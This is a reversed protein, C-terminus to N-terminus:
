FHIGQDNIFEETKQQHNWAYHLSLRRIQKPLQARFTPGDAGYQMNLFGRILCLYSGGNSAPHTGGIFIGGAYLKNTKGLDIGASKRFLEYAIDEYGIYSALLGYMSNSLSSGHETYPYYFDFNAKLIEKRFKSPYLSLLTAVDAQKIIRTGAALGNATGLYENKDIIRSQFEAYSVDELRFYGAFQEIIGREDPEPLYITEAFARIQAQESESLDSSVAELFDLVSFAIHYNTFANDDVREHYEDPGVVDLFHYKGDTFTAYSRYFRVIERFVDLAQKMLKRDGTARYYENFAYLIDASIHIQKDAFYTRLPKGTKRDTVNYLSCRELGDEQSEWAYFAGEYGFSRAKQLAGPLTRIRYRLLSRAVEMDTMLFFPLMFIESDWFVAGKYVQGSLGRAPISTDYRSNGLILLEYLSYNLLFESDDDSELEVKARDFKERFCSVHSRLCRFYDTQKLKAIDTEIEALGGLHVLALKTLEFQEDKKLLIRYTNCASRKQCKPAAAIRCTEKLFVTAKKGENTVGEVFLGEPHLGPRIKHFHPGNIDYVDGDIGSIIELSVDEQATLVIREGVLNDQKASVFRKTELLFKGFHTKRKVIAENLKLSLKHNPSDRYHCLKGGEYIQLFFPNFFNLSERWKDGCQDYAGIMNLTVKDEKTEEEMTGKFGIHGNGILFQNAIYERDKFSYNKRTYILKM